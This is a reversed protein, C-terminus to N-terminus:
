ASRRKKLFSVARLKQQMITKAIRKLAVTSKSDPYPLELGSQRACHIVNYPGSNPGLAAANNVALKTLLKRNSYYLEIDFASTFFALKGIAELGIMTQVCKWCKSCNKRGNIYRQSFAAVCVDLHERVLPNDCIAVIKEFRSLGAAGCQFQLAETSFLPQLVADMPETSDTPGYTANAYGVNGSPLYLGLGKQLVLAAAANRFGVTKRFSVPGFAASPAFIDDMNSSLSFVKLGLPGVLAETRRRADEIRISQDYTRGFAGVQFVAVSTLRLGEPVSPRTYNLFTAFSDVGCSLGTAVDKAQTRYRPSATTGAEVKISKASSEFNRILAMLDNNANYHLLPSIDAEITIDEEMLMAPYLLALVAWNPETADIANFNRRDVDFYLTPPFNPGRLDCMVRFSDDREEIRFRRAVIM